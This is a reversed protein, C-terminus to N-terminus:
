WNEEWASNIEDQSEKDIENFDDQKELLEERIISSNIRALQQIKEVKKDIIRANSKLEKLDDFYEDITNYLRLNQTCFLMFRSFGKGKEKSKSVRMELPKLIKELDDKSDLIVPSESQLESGEKFIYKEVEPSFITLDDRVRQM